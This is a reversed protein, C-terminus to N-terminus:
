VFAAASTAFPVHKTLGGCSIFACGGAVELGSVDEVFVAGTGAVVVVCGEM